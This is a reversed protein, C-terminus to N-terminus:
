LAKCSVTAGAFVRSVHAVLEAIGFPKPLFGHIGMNMANRLEHDHFNGSMAMVLVDSSLERLHHIVDLGDSDPLRMDIIALDTPIIRFQRIGDQATAADLVTYGNLELVSRMLQRLADTDEIVLITPMAYSAVM